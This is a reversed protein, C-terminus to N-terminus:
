RLGEELAPLGLGVVGLGVVVAHLDHRRVQELHLHHELLVVLLDHDVGAVVGLFLDLGALGLSGGGVVLVRPCSPTSGSRAPAALFWRRVAPAPSGAGAVSFWRWRPAPGIGAGGGSRLPSRATILPGAAVRGFSPAMSSYLRSIRDMVLLYGPTTASWSTDRVTRSPWIWAM